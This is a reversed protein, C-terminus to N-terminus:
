PELGLLSRGVLHPEGAPHRRLRLPTVSGEVVAHSPLPEVRQERAAAEVAVHDLPRQALLPFGGVILRPEDRSGRPPVMIRLADATQCPSRLPPLPVMVTGLPTM